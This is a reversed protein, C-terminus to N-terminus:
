ATPSLYQLGFDKKFGIYIHSHVQTTLLSFMPPVAVSHQERDRPPLFISFGSTRKKFERQLHSHVQADTALRSVSCSLFLLRFSGLSTQYLMVWSGKDMAQVLTVTLWIRPPTYVPALLPCSHTLPPVPLSCSDLGGKSTHCTFFM